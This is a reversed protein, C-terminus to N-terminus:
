KVKNEQLSQGPDVSRTIVFPSWNLGKLSFMEKSTRESDRFSIILNNHPFTQFLLAETSNSMAQAEGAWNIKM